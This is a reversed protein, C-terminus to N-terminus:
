DPGTLSDVYRQALNFVTRQGSLVNAHDGYGKYAQRFDGVDDLFVGVTVDDFPSVGDGFDQCAFIATIAAFGVLLADPLADQTPTLTTLFVVSGALNGFAHELLLTGSAADVSYVNLTSACATVLNPLESNRTTTLHAWTSYEAGRSGETLSLICPHVPRSAFM